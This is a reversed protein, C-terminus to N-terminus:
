LEPLIGNGGQVAEEPVAEGPDILPTADGEPPIICEVYLGLWVNTQQWYGNEDLVVNVMIYRYGNWYIYDGRRPFYDLEQLILNSMYFQDKRQAFQGKRTLRWENKGHRNICPMEIQRSLKTRDSLPFHRVHDVPQDRDVELIKPLPRAAHRRTYEENLKLATQTDARKFLDPDYLFETRETFKM